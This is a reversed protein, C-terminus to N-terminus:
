LGKSIEILRKVAKNAAHKWTFNNLLLKQLKRNKNKASKYNKYVKRMLKSFDDICKPSKLSPFLQGDWYHVHCTNPPLESIHDIDILYSNDNNLYLRQGSCDTMIVPLGCLSAECPPICSGEGRSPLVFANCAMYLSPMLNEPIIKSIVKYHPLKKNPFEQEIRKIDEQIKNIHVSKTSQMYRTFLLLSVNDEESFESFYSRLLLDYGKRYSWGFVSMFVFSKPAPNFTIAETKENYLSPDVGTPIIYIPKNKIYKELIEKGFNSTIWIENYQQCCEIFQEPLSYAEVTTYLIRYAASSMESFSPIISDIVIHRKDIQTNELFAFEKLEEENLHNQGKKPDIKVIIGAENLGKALYRNVKAYGGAEYFIGHIKVCIKDSVAIYSEPEKKIEKQKKTARNKAYMLSKEIQENKDYSVIEILPSLILTRLNKSEKITEPPIKILKETYPMHSDIDEIYITNKSINKIIM